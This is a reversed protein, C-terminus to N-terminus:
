GTFELVDLVVCLSETELCFQHTLSAAWDHLISLRLKVGLVRTFTSPSSRSGLTTRTDGCAAVCAICVIFIFIIKLFLKRCHYNNNSDKNSNNYILKRRAVINILNILGMNSVESHVLLLAM